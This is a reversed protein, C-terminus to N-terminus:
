QMIYLLSKKLFLISKKYIQRLLHITEYFMYIYGEQIPQNLTRLSQSIKKFVSFM